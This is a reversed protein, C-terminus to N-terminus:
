QKEYVAITPNNRQGPRWSTWALMKGGNELHWMSDGVDRGALMQRFDVEQNGVARGVVYADKPVGPGTFAYKAGDLPVTMSPGGNMIMSVNTATSSITMSQALSQEDRSTEWTGALGSGKGIRTFHGVSTHATGTLLPHVEVSTYSNGDLAVTLTEIGTTKGGTVDTFRYIFPNEHVCSTTANSVTPYPKGDCAFVYSVVNDGTFRMKGGPLAAYTYVVKALRTKSLDLRWNGSFAADLAAAPRAGAIVLAVFTGALVAVSRLKM